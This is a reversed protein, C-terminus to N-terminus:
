IIRLLTRNKVDSDGAPGPRSADDHRRWPTRGCGEEIRVRACGFPGTWRCVDGRFLKACITIEGNWAPFFIRLGCFFRAAIVFFRTRVIIGVSPATSFVSARAYTWIFSGASEGPRSHQKEGIGTVNLWIPWRNIRKKSKYISKLPSDRDTCKSFAKHNHKLHKIRLTTGAESTMTIVVFSTCFARLASCRTFSSTFIFSSTTHIWSSTSIPVASARRCMWCFILALTECHGREYSCHM